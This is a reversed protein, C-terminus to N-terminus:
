VKDRQKHRSALDDLVNVNNAEESTGEDTARDAGGDKAASGNMVAHKTGAGWGTGCVSNADSSASTVSGRTM